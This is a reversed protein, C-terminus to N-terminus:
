IKKIYLASKITKVAMAVTSKGEYMMFQQYKKVIKSTAAALTLFGKHALGYNGSRIEGQIQFQNKDIEWQDVVQILVHM